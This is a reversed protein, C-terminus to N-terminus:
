DIVSRLFFTCVGALSTKFRPKKASTAVAAVTDEMHVGLIDLVLLVPVAMASAAMASMGTASAGTASVVTAVVTASMLSVMAEM